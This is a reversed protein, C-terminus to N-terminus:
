LREPFPLEVISVSAGSEDVVEAPPTIERRVYALGINQGLRPSSTVSTIQGIKKGEASQLAAGPEIVHTGLLVGRLQRNVHGRHLIRIIVEQGTYCGKSTSIARAQLGAELPITNEDLEAGWRPVGTEIRLTELSAEELQAVGAAGLARNLAPVLARSVVIDIGGPGAYDTGILTITEGEFEAVILEDQALSPRDSLPLARATLADADPGHVSVICRGASVDELRAFLPPVFRRFHALAADLAQAHVDLMVDEGARWARLDAIMKGKPTLLAAYVARNQPAGALDNTILGQVMKVPDRGHVRLLRRDSREIYAAGTRAALYGSAHDSQEANM